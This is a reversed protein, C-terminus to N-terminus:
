QRNDRCKVDEYEQSPIKTPNIGYGIALVFIISEIYLGIISFQEISQLIVFMLPISMMTAEIFTEKTSDIAQISSLLFLLYAMGGTIGGHLFVKLYANHPSLGRLRPPVLNKLQAVETSYGTGTLYNDKILEVMATWIETRGTLSIPVLELVNPSIAFFVVIYIFTGLFVLTNLTNTTIPYELERDIYVALTTGLGVCLLLISSRSGTLFMTILCLLLSLLYLGKKEYIILVLSSIVGFGTVRALGNQNSFISEIAPIGLVSTDSDSVSISVGVLNFDGILLSIIGIVGLIASIISIWHLFNLYNTAKPVIYLLVLLDYCLIVIIVTDIQFRTGLSSLLSSLLYVSLFAFLFTLPQKIASIGNERKAYVYYVSFAILYVSLLFFFLFGSVATEASGLIALGLIIPLHLYKMM